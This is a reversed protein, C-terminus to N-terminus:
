RWKCAPLVGLTTAWGTHEIGVAPAELLTDNVGQKGNWHKSCDQAAKVVSNRSSGVSFKAILYRLIKLGQLTLSFFSGHNYVSCSKANWGKQFGVWSREGFWGQAKLLQSVLYRISFVLNLFAVLSVCPCVYLIVDRSHQSKVNERHIELSVM